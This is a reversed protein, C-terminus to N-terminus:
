LKTVINVVNAKLPDLACRRLEDGADEATSLLWSPPTSPLYGFKTHLMETLLGNWTDPVGPLCWHSCDMMMKSANSREGNKLRYDSPHAEARPLSLRTIDLLAFSPLSTGHFAQIAAHRAALAHEDARWKVALQTVNGGRECTGGSNWGGGNFHRPSYTRYIVSVNCSATELTERVTHLARELYQIAVTNCSVPTAGGETPWAACPRSSAASADAGEFTGGEKTYKTYWHGTALVLVPWKSPKGQEVQAATGCVVRRLFGKLWSTNRLSVLKPTKTLQGSAHKSTTEYDVLSPHSYYAVNKANGQLNSTGLLCRMSEYMNRTQSDGVFLVRRHRSLTALSDARRTMMSLADRGEPQWHWYEHMGPPVISRNGDIGDEETCRQRPDIVCGRQGHKYTVRRGPLYIWEGQFLRHDVHSSSAMAASLM